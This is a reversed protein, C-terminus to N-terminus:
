PMLEKAMDGIWSRIQWDSPAGLTFQEVDIHIDVGGSSYVVTLLDGKCTTFWLMRAINHITCRLSRQYQWAGRQENWVTSFDIEINEFTTHGHRLVNELREMTYVDDAVTM